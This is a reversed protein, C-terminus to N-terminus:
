HFCLYSKEIFPSVHVAPSVQSQGSWDMTRLFNLNDARIDLLRHQVVTFMDGNEMLLSPAFIFFFDYLVLNRYPM